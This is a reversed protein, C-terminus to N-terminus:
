VTAFTARESVFRRSFDDGAEQFLCQCERETLRLRAGAARIFGRTVQRAYGQLGQHLPLYFLWMTVGYVLTHWAHAQEAEVAAHYRQVFRVDRLPRLRRLQLRGVRRSPEGIQRLTPEEGLQRDFRLLERLQNRSAHRHARQIAPLEVPWLVENQYRRLVRRLAGVGDVPGVRLLASVSALSVLGGVSGLQEVLPHNRGLVDAPEEFSNPIPQQNM